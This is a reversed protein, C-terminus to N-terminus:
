TQVIRPKNKYASKKIFVSLFGHNFRSSCIKKSCKEMFIDLFTIKKFMNLLNFFLLNFAVFSGTLRYKVM